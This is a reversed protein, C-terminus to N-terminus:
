HGIVSLFISRPSPRQKPRCCTGVLGERWTVPYCFPYWGVGPSPFPTTKTPNLVQKLPKLWANHARRAPGLRWSAHPSIPLSQSIRALRFRAPMRLRYLVCGAVVDGPAAGPREACRRFEASRELWTVGAFVM